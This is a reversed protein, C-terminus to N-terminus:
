PPSFTPKRGRGPADHLTLNGLAWRQRWRRVCNPHLDLRAALDVNSISPYEHLLLVMRARQRLHSAATRAAVM